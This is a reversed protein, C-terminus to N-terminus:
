IFLEKGIRSVKKQISHKSRGLESICYKLGKSRYNEKLFDIEFHNWDPNMKKIDADVIGKYTDYKRELRSDESDQYMWEGLKMIDWKNTIRVVSSSNKNLVVRKVTYKIGLEDLKNIMFGWDQQVTSAVAYQTTSNKHYFSGDGDSYGRFFHSHLDKPINNLIKTPSVYSKKDYDMKKLFNYLHRNTTQFEGKRYTKKTRKDYRDYHYDNWNGILNLIKIFTNYDSNIDKDYKCHLSIRFGNKSISGDAWILGLIYAIIINDINFFQFHDVNYKENIGKKNFGM